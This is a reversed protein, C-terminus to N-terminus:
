SVIQITYDWVSHRGSPYPRSGTFSDNSITLRSIRAIDFRRWDPLSGSSSHGGIQYGLIQLDGNSVGLVHPEVIRTQLGYSFQILKKQQIAQRITEQM